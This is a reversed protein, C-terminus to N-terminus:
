RRNDRRRGGLALRDIPRRAHSASPDFSILGHRARRPPHCFSAKSAAPGAEMLRWGFPHLVAMCYEAALYRRVPRRSQCSKAQPFSCHNLELSAQGPPISKASTTLKNRRALVAHTGARRYVGRTVTLCGSGGTLSRSLKESGLM